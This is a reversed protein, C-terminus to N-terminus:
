YSLLYDITDMYDANIDNISNEIKLCNTIETLLKEEDKELCVFAHEKLILDQYYDAGTEDIILSIKGVLAAETISGSYRSIHLDCEKLVNPLPEKTAEEINVNTYVKYKKLMEVINIKEDETMRPHFRLWWNLSSVSNKIAKIIYEPLIDGVPQLTFLINPKVAGGKTKLTSENNLFGIWPNGGSLAIHKENGWKSINNKSSEDWCWFLDPLLNYGNKPIKHFSYAAHSTGQGGHQLDVSKVGLKNAALMLGYVPNSYYVLGIVIDTGTKQILKKFLAEWSLIVQVNKHVQRLIREENLGTDSSAIVLWENFGDSKKIERVFRNYDIKHIFLPLLRKVDLVRKAKYAKKLSVSPYELFYSNVDKQELFDMIPEIFRNYEKDKYDIRQSYSSIFLFKAPKLNLRNWYLIAQFKERIKKTARNIFSKREKKYNKPELGSHLSFYLNKKILPWITIENVIWDQVEFKKEWKLFLASLEVPDIRNM